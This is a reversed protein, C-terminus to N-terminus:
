LGKLYINGARILFFGTERKREVVLLRKNEDSLTSRMFYAFALSFGEAGRREEHTAIKM